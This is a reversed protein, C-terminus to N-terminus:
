VTLGQSLVLAKCLAWATEGGGGGGGSSCLNGSSVSQRNRSSAAGRAELTIAKGVACQGNM